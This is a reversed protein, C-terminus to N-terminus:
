QYKTGTNYRSFFVFFVYTSAVPVMSLRAMWRVIWWRRTERRGARSLAWGTFLRAPSIFAVFVISTLGTVERPTLEIKLLYLPVAFLLTVLVAFWFAM